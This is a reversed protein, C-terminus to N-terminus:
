NKEGSQIKVIMLYYIYDIQQKYLNETQKNWWFHVQKITIHEYGNLELSKISNYLDPVRKDSNQAIYNKVEETIACPEPRNHLNHKIKCLCSWQYM